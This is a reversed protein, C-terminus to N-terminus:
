GRFDRLAGLFVSRVEGDCEESYITVITDFPADCGLNDHANQVAARTSDDSYGYTVNAFGRHTLKAVYRM